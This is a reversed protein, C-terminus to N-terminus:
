PAPAPVSRSSPVCCLTIPEVGMGSCANDPNHRLLRHRETYSGEATPCDAEDDQYICLSYGDAPLPTCLQDPEACTSKTAIKCERAVLGWHVDQTAACPPQVEPSANAYAVTGANPWTPPCDAPMDAPNGIWYWNPGTFGDDPKDFCQQPDCLPQTVASVPPTCDGSGNCYAHDHDPRSCGGLVAVVALALALIWAAWRFAM